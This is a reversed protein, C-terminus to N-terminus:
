LSAINRIVNIRDLIGQLYKKQYYFDKVQLLTEESNTDEEYSEIVPAIDEYIKIMLTNVKQEVEILQEQKEDLELEMLEENIDKVEMMFQPSFGYHTDPVFKKLELLYAITEDPNSFVLYADEVLSIKDETIHQPVSFDAKEPDPRYKDILEDYRNKVVTEDLVFSLPLDFLEFYNM